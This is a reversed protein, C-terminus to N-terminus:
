YRYGLLRGDGLLVDHRKPKQQHPWSASREKTERWDRRIRDRGRRDTGKHRTESPKNSRCCNCVSCIFNMLAACILCGGICFFLGSLAKWNFIGSWPEPEPCSELAAVTMGADVDWGMPSFPNKNVTWSGGLCDSLSQEGCYAYEIGSTFADWCVQTYNRAKSKM